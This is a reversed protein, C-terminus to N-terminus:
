ESSEKSESEKCSGFYSNTKANAKLAKPVISAGEADLSMSFGYNATGSTVRAGTKPTPVRTNSAFSYDSGGSTKDTIKM